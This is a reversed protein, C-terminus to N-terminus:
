QGPNSSRGVMTQTGPQVVACEAMFKDYTKMYSSKGGDMVCLKAIEHESRQDGERLLKLECFPTRQYRVNNILAYLGTLYSSEAMRDETFIADEGLAYNVQMSDQAGFMQRLLEPDAKSGIFLYVFLSNFCLYIGNQQFSQRSLM